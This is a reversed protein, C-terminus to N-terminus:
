CLAAIIYLRVVSHKFPVSEHTSKMPTIPPSIGNNGWTLVAEVINLMYAAMCLRVVTQKFPVSGHTSKM